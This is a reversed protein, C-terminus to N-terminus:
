CRVRQGEVTFRDLLEDHGEEKRKDSVRPCSCIGKMCFCVERHWLQSDYSFVYPAVPSRTEQAAVKAM